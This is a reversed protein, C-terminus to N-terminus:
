RKGRKRPLVERFEVMRIEKATREGREILGRAEAHAIEADYGCAFIHPKGDIRIEVALATKAKRKPAAKRTPKKAKLRDRPDTLSAILRPGPSPKKKAKPM